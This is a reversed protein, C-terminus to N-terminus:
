IFSLVQFLSSKVWFCFKLSFFNFPLGKKKESFCIELKWNKLYNVYLLKRLQERVPDGHTTTQNYKLYTNWYM